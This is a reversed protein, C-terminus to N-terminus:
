LDPSCLLHSNMWGSCCFTRSSFPDGDSGTRFGRSVAGLLNWGPQTLHSVRSLVQDTWFQPGSPAEPADEQVPKVPNQKSISLGESTWWQLPLHNFPPKSTMVSRKNKM